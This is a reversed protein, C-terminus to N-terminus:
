WGPIINFGYVINKGPRQFPKAAYFELPIYSLLIRVGAGVSFVPELDTTNGTRFKLNPTQGKSWAEGADAFVFGETPLFSANVLGYEKTGLLPVRVEASAIAIRSGILRSLVPCPDNPTANTCEGAGISYPDYGRMLGPEGVYLPTLANSESDGGYRGYHLGRVAFTVPRAFFYKRWDALATTFHLDGTLAQVEYRYRTGRVPSIFGFVSSDGVFASSAKFMTVAFNPVLKEIEDSVLEGGVFLLTEIDAKYSYRQGGAAFEIRRTPGFPYQTLLSVDDITQIERIQQLADAIYTQGNIVVPVQGEAPYVSVYPLHVVDVGWNYRHTQNLYYTEGGIQDKFSGGGSGSSYGGTQVALGVSHRGLIDTFEAAVSGAVGYGYRDAGVGISPPGLYSLHLGADYPRSRYTTEAPPLGVTASALYKTIESGQARFPPLVAARPAEAVATNQVPVGSPSPPLTYINYDDDEYLSFAMEGTKEAISMAPSTETIGSVGTQVATIREIGKGTYRYVDPVGEPNAIFYLSGDPGYQPDIHKAHAFLPLNTIQGSGTDITSIGFDGFRLEVLNTGSGRDTVFAISRGDPSWAPQLDAFRDNTLQRVQKTNIDYVYLDTVGTAQGSIAISHGDPSWAPATLADIGPVRIHEIKRSEVDVIALFNDGKEFVVFALKSSDPSFSGASDIFRLADMHPDRDSSILKRIIKGTKADALYLDVDFIDRTSLFAIYRGDPSFAPGVNLDGRTTKSGLVPNGLLKPRDTVVPDYLEHASAKWDAFLQKASLGTAREFAGEIGIQGAALFYHVVADDGFRGGIYAMLAEGYRYPFYRPDTSLKRLDPLRNHIAADRIWMATLPDVRGKSFYEAMGEVLWLPMAELSFRRRNSVQSAAIDYQFVHVLEHGLVHDNDAYNGTLPLVVRNMFEDTFGGTGEGILGGTTTTQQFDASNAYLVIPKRTFTHNFTRSLRDYWREAMRGIDNVVDAEQDYYYIDFHPTQLTKFHFNEWQVKNRGFYQANAHPTVLLLLVLAFSGGLLRRTM